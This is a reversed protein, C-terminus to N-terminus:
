PIFLLLFHQLMFEGHWTKPDGVNAPLTRYFLNQRDKKRGKQTDPHKRPITDNTKELNQCPALFRYSTTHSVAQNKKGGFQSFPGFISWFCPKKFKNFFKNM